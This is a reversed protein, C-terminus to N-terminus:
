LRRDEADDQTCVDHPSRSSLFFHAIINSEDNPVTQMFHLQHLASDFPRHGRGRQCDPRGRMSTGEIVKGNPDVCWCFGTPYWCQMPLYNGQQDCQPKYSGIKGAGPAAEM